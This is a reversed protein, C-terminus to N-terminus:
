DLKPVIGSAVLMKRYWEAKKELKLPYARSSSPMRWLDFSHGCLCCPLSTGIPPLESGTIDAVVGCAKEGTAVVASITPCEDLLAVLDIPEVIELYKDSANDKLRRVRMATDWLAIGLRDLLAKIRAEDFKNGKADWYYDRDNHMVLGMIRWMDNNRNPYFFPMSWRVPKPPFTGLMLLRPVPPLYPPWPHSEISSLPNM